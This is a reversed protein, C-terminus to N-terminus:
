FIGFGGMLGGMLGKLLTTQKDIPPIESNINEPIDSNKNLVDESRIDYKLIANNNIINTKNRLRELTLKNLNVEEVESQLTNNKASNELPINIVATELTKLREIEEYTDLVESNEKKLRILYDALSEDKEVIGVEFLLEEKIRPNAYAVNAKKLISQEGLSLESNSSESKLIYTRAVDDPEKESIGKAGEKPPMLKYDPPMILPSKTVTLFEDPVKQKFDTNDMVSIVTDKLSGGACGTLLLFIVILLINKNISNM